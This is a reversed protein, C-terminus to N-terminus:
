FCSQSCVATAEDGGLGGLCGTRLFRPKLCLLHWGNGGSPIQICSHGLALSLTSVVTDCLWQQSLLHPHHFPRTSAQMINKMCNTIQDTMLSYTPAFNELWHDTLRFSELNSNDSLKCKLTHVKRSINLALTYFSQTSEAKGELSHNLVPRRPCCLWGGFNRSTSARRHPEGVAKESNLVFCKPTISKLHWHRWSGAILAIYGVPFDTSSLYHPIAASCGRCRPSLFLEPNKKM